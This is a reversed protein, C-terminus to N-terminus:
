LLLKIIYVSVLLLILVSLLIIKLLSPENSSSTESKVTEVIEEVEYRYLRKTKGMPNTKPEFATGTVIGVYVAKKGTEPDKYVFVGEPEYTSASGDKPLTNKGAQVSKKFIVNGSYDYGVLWKEGDVTNDGTLIYVTHDRSHMGQFSQGLQVKDLYFSTIPKYNRSVIKELEYINVLVKPSDKEKFRVILFGNENDITGAPDKYGKPTLHFYEMENPKDFSFRCISQGFGTTSPKCDTWLRVSGDNATELALLSGHGMGPLIINGLSEGTFSHKNILIDNNGAHISSYIVENLEDITFSQLANKNGYGEMQLENVMQPVSDSPDMIDKVVIFYKELGIVENEMKVKQNFPVVVFNRLKYIGKEIYINKGSAVMKKFAATDDSIGDGKAGFEKPTAYDKVPASTGTNVLGILRDGIYIQEASPHISEYEVLISSNETTGV